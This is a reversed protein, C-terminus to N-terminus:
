RGAAGSAARAVQVNRDVLRALQAEARARAGSRCRAIEREAWSESTAFSGCAAELAAGIRQRLRAVDAPRSLDLDSYGVAQSAAPEFAAAPASAVGAAALAAALAFKTM